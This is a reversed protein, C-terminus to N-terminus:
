GGLREAIVAEVHPLVLRAIYDHGADTPHLGDDSILVADDGTFWGEAIPDVFLADADSAASGVGRSVRRLDTPIDDGTPSPGIVIVSSGPAARRVDSLLDVAAEFVDDRTAGDFTDNISGFVIVIDASGDVTRDALEAFTVNRWGTSVYGSGGSGDVTMAVRYGEDRLLSHLQSTWNEDGMGGQDVGETYSDGIVVISTRGAADDAGESCGAVVLALVALWRGRHRRPGPDYM